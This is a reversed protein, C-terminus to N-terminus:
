LHEGQETRHSEGTWVREDFHVFRKKRTMENMKKKTSHVLHCSFSKNMKIFPV